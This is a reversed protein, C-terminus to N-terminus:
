ASSLSTCVGVLRVTSEVTNSGPKRKQLLLHIARALSSLAFDYAGLETKFSFNNSLIAFFLRVCALVAFTLRVFSVGHRHRTGEGEQKM